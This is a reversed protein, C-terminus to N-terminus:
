LEDHAAANDESDGVAVKVAEAAKSAGSKVAEKVSDAAGGSATATSSEGEVPRSAWADVKHSGSDRIFNALDEVNRAGNFDVVESKKGAPFLKITPFGSIDEPIDNATADVKAVIVLKNFEENDKYLAGLEEYKPALAKCHGCWPAYYEVLVDKSDDMIIDKYNNAVIVTVPGDQTEPIPESKISPEIKGAAFDDMYKGIEAETIKHDQPYPFKKKTSPDQIVFAPWKGVELNLNGAHQGFAKADIVAFNVKGKHKIAVSRLEEALKQREDVEEAFIYALPIGASMYGAYTEPGIEGIIPM